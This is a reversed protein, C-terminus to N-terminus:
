ARAHDSPASLPAAGHAEEVDQPSSVVRSAALATALPLTFWITTGRGPTSEVGVHGHHEEVIAKSVYLGIGFGVQSGSQVGVGGTQYFVEAAQYFREWIHPQDELPIGVGDDHVAVRAKWERDEKQVRVEVAQDARSFKLANSVYNAVVQAIRSADALVPVPSAEAVWRISREPHLATQEAVAAGVLNALDVPALRLALRGQRVLLADLVEEVLLAMREVSQDCWGILTRLAGAAGTYEEGNRVLRLLTELRRGLLEVNGILSTLPTRLEHAVVSLFAEMRENALRLASEKERAVDRERRLQEQELYTVAPRLMALLLLVIAVAEPLILDDRDHMTVTAHVIMVVSVAVAAFAPAVFSIGALLDRWTLREAPGRPRSPLEAPALHLRVLAAVPLLLYCMFRFLDPWSGARYTYPPYYMQVAAWTDGVFLTAVAICLLSLVLRETATPHRRALAIVLGYFLVLDGFEYFMEIHKALPPEGTQRTIPLLVFYWALATIASMWLLGDLMTRLGPLWGGRWPQLAFALFFCPYQLIFFLDPLSPFPVGHPYVAVDAFTWLTRAVAYFFLGLVGWCIAAVPRHTRRLQVAVWAMVVFQPWALGTRLWDTAPKVWPPQLVTASLQYGILLLCVVFASLLLHDNLVGKLLAARPAVHHKMRTDALAM